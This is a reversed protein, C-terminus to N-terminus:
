GVHRVVLRRQDIRLGGPQGFPAVDGAIVWAGEDAFLQAVERGIGMAAGTVITIKGNLRPM